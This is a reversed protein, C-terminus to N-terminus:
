GIGNDRDENKAFLEGMVAMVMPWVSAYLTIWMINKFGLSNTKLRGFIMTVAFVLAINWYLNIIPATYDLMELVASESEKTANSPVYFRIM